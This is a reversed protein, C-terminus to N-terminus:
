PPGPTLNPRVRQLMLSAFTLRDFPTPSGKSTDPCAPFGTGSIGCTGECREEYGTGRGVSGTKLSLVADASAAPDGAVLRGPALWDIGCCSSFDFALVPGGTDDAIAGLFPTEEKAPVNPSVESFDTKPKARIHTPILSPVVDSTM